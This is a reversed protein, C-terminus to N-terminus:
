FKLKGTLAGTATKMIGSGRDENRTMWVVTGIMALWAPLANVAPILELTNGGLMTLFKKPNQPSWSVGHIQFWIYFGIVSCLTLLSGGILGIGIATLGAQLLDICGAVIMMSYGTIKSIREKKEEPQPTPRIPRRLATKNQSITNDM